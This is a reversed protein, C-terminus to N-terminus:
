EGRKMGKNWTSHYVKRSPDGDLLEPGYEAVAANIVATAAAPEKTIGDPSESVVYWRGEARDLQLSVKTKKRKNQSKLQEATRHLPLLCKRM